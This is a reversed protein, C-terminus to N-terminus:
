RDILTVIKKICNRPLFLLLYYDIEFNMILKM